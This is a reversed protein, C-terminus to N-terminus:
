IGQFEKNTRRLLSRVRALLERVNLPSTLYADAGMELLGIGAAEEGDQGLIVIPTQCVERIRMCLEDGDMRRATEVMVILDPRGEDIEAVAQQCKSASVVQFGSHQLIFTLEGRLVSDGHILLIKRM